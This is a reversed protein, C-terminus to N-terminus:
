AENFLQNRLRSIRNDVQDLGRLASELREELMLADRSLREREFELRTM